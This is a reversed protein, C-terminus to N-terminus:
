LLERVTEGPRCLKAGKDTVVIPRNLLVPHRALADLLADDPTEPTIGIDQAISEQFRVVDRLPVGMRAVLAALVTKNLPTKLYEV